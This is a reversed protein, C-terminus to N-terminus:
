AAVDGIRFIRVCTAAVAIYAGAPPPTGAALPNSSHCRIVNTGADIDSQLVPILANGPVSGQISTAAKFSASYVLPSIPEPPTTQRLAVTANYSVASLVNFGAAWPIYLYVAYLGSQTVTLTTGLTASDVRTLWSALAVAGIQISAGTFWVVLDDTSGTATAAVVTPIIAGQLTTTVSPGSGPPVGNARQLCCGSM